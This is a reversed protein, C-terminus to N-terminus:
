VDHGEKFIDAAVDITDGVVRKVPWRGGEIEPEVNEIAIAPYTDFMPPRRAVAATEGPGASPLQGPTHGGDRGGSQPSQTQTPTQSQSQGSAGSQATGTNAHAWRTSVGNGNSPTSDMNNM